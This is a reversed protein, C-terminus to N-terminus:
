TNLEPFLCGGSRVLEKVEGSVKQANRSLRAAFEKERRAGSKADYNWSWAFISLLIPILDLGKETLLYFDKRRDEPNPTKALIGQEELCALRSALVNTSFGEKSKMFEGYTKKGVFVIDRIILLSWKDGFVELGYNV